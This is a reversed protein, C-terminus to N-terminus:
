RLSVVVVHFPFADCPSIQLLICYSVICFVQYEMNSACELDILKREIDIFCGYYVDTNESSLLCHFGFLLM